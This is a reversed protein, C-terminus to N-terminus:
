SNLDYLKDIILIVWRVFTTESSGHVLEIIIPLVTSIKQTILLYALKKPFRHPLGIAGSGNCEIYEANCLVLNLNICM